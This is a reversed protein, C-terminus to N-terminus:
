MYQSYYSEVNALALDLKILFIYANTEMHLLNLFKYYSHDLLKEERHILNNFVMLLM